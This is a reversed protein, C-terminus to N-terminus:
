CTTNMIPDQEGRQSLFAEILYWEGLGFLGSEHFCPRGSILVEPLRWLNDWVVTKLPDSGCIHQPTWKARVGSRVYMTVCM